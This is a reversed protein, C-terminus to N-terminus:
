HKLFQHAAYPAIPQIRLGRRVITAAHFRQFSSAFVHTLWMLWLDSVVSTSAIKLVAVPEIAWDPVPRLPWKRLAAKHQGIDREVKVSAARRVRIKM